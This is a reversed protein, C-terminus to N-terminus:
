RAALASNIDDRMRRAADAAAQRYDLGAEKAAGSAHAFIIGRSSNVVAGMGAGDFNVAVDKATAGQAGYGPVLFWSAPLLRRIEAAEEPYTAGVVAGVPTFGHEGELGAGLENLLAAVHLYLPRGDSAVIQDQVDGASPNSTKTLAFIGKGVEACAKVCPIIGDRGLYPNVTLADPGFGNATGGGILRVRGLHAQAYAEATSGIDNRKADEIVLLGRDSAYEILAQLVFLGAPGCAEFFAAQPKICAAYEGTADIIGRGFDLYAMAVALQGDGHREVARKRVEDPLRDVVPDLGVCVRTNKTRVAAYLRDAFPIPKAAIAM